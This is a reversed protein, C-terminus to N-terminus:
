TIHQPSIFQISSASLLPYIILKQTLLTPVESATALSKSMHAVNQVGLRM